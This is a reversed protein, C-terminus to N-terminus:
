CGGGLYSVLLPRGIVGGGGPIPALVSHWRSHRPGRSHSYFVWNWFFFLFKGFLAHFCCKKVFRFVHCSLWYKPSPINIKESNKRSLFKQLYYCKFCHTDELWVAAYILTLTADPRLYLFFHRVLSSYCCTSKGRVETDKVGSLKLLTTWRPNQGILIGSWKRAPKRWLHKEKSPAINKDRGGFKVTPVPNSIGFFLM